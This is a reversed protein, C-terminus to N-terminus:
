PLTFFDLINIYSLLSKSLFFCFSKVKSQPKCREEDILSLHLSM